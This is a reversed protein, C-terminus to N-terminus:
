GKKKNEQSTVTVYIGGDQENAGVVVFRKYNGDNSSLNAYNKGNVESTSKSVKWGQAKLKDEFFSIVQQMSDNTKFSYTKGISEDSETSFNGEIKAGPYQPVWDPLTTNAGSGITAKGDPTTVEIGKDKDMSVSTEKGDASKEKFTINGNKDQDFTLIITKGSRKDKVTLTNNAEDISVLEKDPDLNIAMKAAALAPNRKALAPDFGVKNYFYYGGVGVAIIGILIFGACGILIWKGAGGKKPQNPPPFPPQQQYPNQQYQPQQPNMPRTPVGEPPPYPPQGPPPPPYNSM